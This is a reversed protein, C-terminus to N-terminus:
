RILHIWLGYGLLVALFEILANDLKELNAMTNYIYQGIKDLLQFLIFGAVLQAIFLLDFKISATGLIILLGALMIETARIVTRRHKRIPILLLKLMSATTLIGGFWLWYLTYPTTQKVLTKAVAGLTLPMGMMSLAGVATIVWRLPTTGDSRIIDINRHGTCSIQSGASLFLLSKFIAHSFAYIAGATPGAAIVIGMQSMTHYALIRKIDKQIIAGLGGLIMSILGFLIIGSAASQPIHNWIRFILAAGMKVFGGSLMVSVETPAMAHAMPLWMSTFFLGTKLFIPTILMSLLLPTKIQTLYESSLSGTQAYIIGVATLYITFAFYSLILYKLSIWSTRWSKDYAILTYAIISSLELVVYMTFLDSVVTSAILVATLTGLLFHFVPSKERGEISAVLSSIAIATAIWPTWSEIGYEIGMPWGGFHGHAGINEFMSYSFAIGAISAAISSICSYQGLLPASSAVLLILIIWFGPDINIM